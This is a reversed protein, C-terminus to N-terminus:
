VVSILKNVNKMGRELCSIQPACQPLSNDSYVLSWRGGGDTGEADIM